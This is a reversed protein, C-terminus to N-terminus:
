LPVDVQDGSESTSAFIMWLINLLLILLAVLSGSKPTDM